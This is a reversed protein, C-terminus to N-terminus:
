PRATSSRHPKRSTTASRSSCSPRRARCRRRVRPRGRYRVATEGDLCNAPPRPRRRGRGPVAPGSGTRDVPRRAGLRRDRRPDRCQGARDPDPRARRRRGVPRRRGAGVLEPWPDAETRVARLVVRPDPDLRCRRQRPGGPGHRLRGGRGIRGVLRRDDADPGVPQPGARLAGARVDLPQRVRALEDQRAPDPRRGAPAPGARHRPRLRPGSLRALRQEPAHRRPDRRPGQAPVARRGPGLGPQGLAARGPRPRREFLPAVVANLLPNLREIRAIAADVLELPTVQGDRVLEAQGIADLEAFDTVAARAGSGRPCRRRRDPHALVRADGLIRPTRDPRHRPRPRGPRRAQGARDLRDREDLHNVWASGNTFAALATTLDIAEAPLLPEARRAARALDPERAVEIEAMVNPTSVTWDSGGVLRAGAAQLSRFPYQLRAREPPLFPLTLEVM